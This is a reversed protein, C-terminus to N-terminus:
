ASPIPVGAARAAEFAETATKSIESDPLSELRKKWEATFCLGFCRSLDPLPHYFFAAGESKDLWVWGKGDLFKMNLDTKLPIGSKLEFGSAAAAQSAETSSEAASVEMADDKEASEEEM